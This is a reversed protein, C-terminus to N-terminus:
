AGELVFVSILLQLPLPFSSPVSPLSLYPLPAQLCIDRLPEPRKNSVTDGQGPRPPLEMGLWQGMQETTPKQNPKTTNQRTAETKPEKKM